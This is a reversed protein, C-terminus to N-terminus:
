HSIGFDFDNLEKFNLVPYTGQEGCFYFKASSHLYLAPEASLQWKGTCPNHNM